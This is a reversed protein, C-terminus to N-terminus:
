PYYPVLGLGLALRVDAALPTRSLMRALLRRRGPGDATPIRVHVDLRGPRLIAPDLADPTPAAGLLIVPPGRRASVGDLEVQNPIPNPNPNPIPNPIPM